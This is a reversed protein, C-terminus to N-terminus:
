FLYQNFSENFFSNTSVFKIERVKLKEKEEETM